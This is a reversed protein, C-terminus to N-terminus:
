ETDRGMKMAMGVSAPATEQFGYKAYLHKADGDAILSVYGSDPVNADIWEKLRQMIQAGFGQGQYAPLVAIDVIQYHCGGDGIIRGMGIVADGDMLSVGFLGGALGAQAAAESKPSLGSAIRLRRYDEVSPAQDMLRVGDSM